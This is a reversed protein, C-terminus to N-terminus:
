LFVELGSLTGGDVRYTKSDLFGDVNSLKGNVALVKSKWSLFKALDPTTTRRVRETSAPRCPRRSGPNRFLM